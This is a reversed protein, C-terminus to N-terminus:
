HEVVMQVLRGFVDEAWGVHVRVKTTWPVSIAGLIGTARTSSINWIQLLRLQSMTVRKDADPEEPGFGDPHIYARELGPSQSLLQLIRPLNLGRVERLVLSRLNTLAQIDPGLESSDLTVHRLAPAVGAFLNNLPRFVTLRIRQLSPAPSSLFTYIQPEPVDPDVEEEYYESFALSKIPLREAIARSM